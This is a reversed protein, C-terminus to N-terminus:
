RGRKPPLLDTVIQPTQAQRKAENNPLERSEAVRIFIPLLVPALGLTLGQSSLMNASSNISM